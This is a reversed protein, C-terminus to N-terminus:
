LRGLLMLVNATVNLWVLDKIFRFVSVMVLLVFTVLLTCQVMNLAPLAAQLNTSLLSLFVCCGGGQLILLFVEVLRGGGRGLTTEAVGMFTTPSPTNPDRPLSGLIQKCYVLLSMSYIGQVAGPGLNGKILTIAAETPSLRKDYPIEDTTATVAGEGAIDNVQGSGDASERLVEDVSHYSSAM